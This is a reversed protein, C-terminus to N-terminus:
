SRHDLGKGIPRNSAQDFVIALQLDVKPKTARQGGRERRRLKPEIANLVVPAKFPTLGYTEQRGLPGECRGLALIVARRKRRVRSM